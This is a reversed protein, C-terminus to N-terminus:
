FDNKIIDYQVYHFRTKVVWVTNIMTPKTLLNSEELSFTLRTTVELFINVTWINAQSRGCDSLENGEVARLYVVVQNNSSKTLM